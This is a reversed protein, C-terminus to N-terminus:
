VDKLAWPHSGEIPKWHTSCYAVRRWLRSRWGSGYGSGSDHQALLLLWCFDGFWYGDLVHLLRCLCMMQIQYGMRKELVALLLALKYRNQDMGACRRSPYSFGYRDSFSSSWDSHSANGGIYSYHCIWCNWAHARWFYRRHILCKRWACLSCRIFLLKM